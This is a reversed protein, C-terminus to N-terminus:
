KQKPDRRRIPKGIQGKSRRSRESERDDKTDAAEGPKDEPDFFQSSVQSLIV